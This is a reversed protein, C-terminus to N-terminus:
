VETLDNIVCGLLLLTWALARQQVPVFGDKNEGHSLSFVTESEGINMTMLMVWRSSPDLEGLWVL